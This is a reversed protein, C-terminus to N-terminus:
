LAKEVFRGNAARQPVQAKLLQNERKLERAKAALRKNKEECTDTFVQGHGNPCHFTKGDQLRHEYFGDTVDFRIGCNCCYLITMPERTM